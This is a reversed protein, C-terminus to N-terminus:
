SGASSRMEGSKGLTKKWSLLTGAFNCAHLLKM